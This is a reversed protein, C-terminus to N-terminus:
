LNDEPVDIVWKMLRTLGKQNAAKARINWLGGSLVHVKTFGNDTLLKASQFVEVGANFAYLIIDKNQYASLEGMRNALEAAPINVANQVHGRNMWTRETMTNTFEKQTRVDLIYTNPAKTLMEDMEVATIYHFSYPHEWLQKRLPVEKNSASMWESMGNFAANVHTYGNESLLKAALNTERGFDAVVLIPRNKPVRDLSASLQVFPINIAGKLKGLANASVDLSIGKFASDTRVDLIFLDKQSIMLQAIDKPSLLKFRNNTEYLNNLCPSTSFKLLNFETMAGNVNIVNTFGSDSLMKSCIRSRQSHSCIVFVPKNKYAIIENLRNKVESVDINVAGKLHGINLSASVSTDRFEGLSRVDLILRDPNKRLSDCLDNIYVTKFAINDYKFQSFLQRTNILLVLLLIKKM